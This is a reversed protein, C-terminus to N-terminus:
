HHFTYFCMAFPISIFFSLHLIPGFICSIGPPHGLLKSSFSLSDLPNYHISNHAGWERLEYPLTRVGMLVTNLSLAQLFTIFVLPPWSPPALGKSQCGQLLLFLHWLARETHVCHFPSTLGCHSPPWWCTPSLPVKIKTKWGRPSHSFLSRNNLGGLSHYITICGSSM